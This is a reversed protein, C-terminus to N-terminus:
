NNSKKCLWWHLDITQRKACSGTCTLQKFKKCGGTCGTCTLQKVKACGGTCTLQKFKKCLWWHPDIIQSKLCGGTCSLQKFEPVITQIKPVVMM